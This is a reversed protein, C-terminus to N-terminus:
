SFAPLLAAPAQAAPLEGSPLGSWVVEVWEHQGRIATVNAAIRTSSYEVLGLGLRVGAVNWLELPNHAQGPRRPASAASREAARRLAVVTLAAALAALLVRCGSAPM